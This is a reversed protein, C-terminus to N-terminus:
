KKKSRLNKTYEEAEVRSTFDGKLLKKRGAFVGIKGSDSMSSISTTKGDRGKKEHSKSELMVRLTYGNSLGLVKGLKSKKNMKIKKKLAQRSM